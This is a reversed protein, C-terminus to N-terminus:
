KEALIMKYKPIQLIDFGILVLRKNKRLTSNLAHFSWSKELVPTPKIKADSLCRLVAERSTWNGMSQSTRKIWKNIGPIIEM